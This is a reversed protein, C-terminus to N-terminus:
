SLVCSFIFFYVDLISGYVLEGFLLFVVFKIVNFGRFYVLSYVKGCFKFCMFYVLFVLFVMM